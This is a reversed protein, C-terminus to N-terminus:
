WKKILLDEAVEQMKYEENAIGTPIGGIRNTNIGKKGKTYYISGCHKDEDNFIFFEVIDQNFTGLKVYAM